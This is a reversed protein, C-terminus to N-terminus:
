LNNAEVVVIKKKSVYSDRKRRNHCGKCVRSVGHRSGASKVFFIKTFEFLCSKCQLIIEDEMDFMSILKRQYGNYCKICKRGIFKRATSRTQDCSVCEQNEYCSICTLSRNKPGDNFHSEDRIMGCVKCVRMYHQSPAKFM